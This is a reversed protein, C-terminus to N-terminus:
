NNIKLNESINYCYKKIKDNNEFDTTRPCDVPVPPTKIIEEINKSINFIHIGEEDTVVYIFQKKKIKSQQYNSFLKLAELLKTKYYNKRNKIEVIYNKDEADFYSYKDTSKKLNLKYEKNLTDITEQETM